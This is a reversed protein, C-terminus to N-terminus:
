SSVVPFFPSNQPLRRWKHYSRGFAGITGGFVLKKMLVTARVGQQREKGKQEEGYVILFFFAILFVGSVILATLGYPYPLKAFTAIGLILGVLGITFTIKTLNSIRM